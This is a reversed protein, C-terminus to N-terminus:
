YIDSATLINRKGVRESLHSADIFLVDDCDRKPRLVMIITPIDAGMFINAPLGIIADIHNKEILTKRIKEENKSGPSLIGSPFVAVMIGHPKVHFLGHLLFAYDAKGKPAVGYEKFRPDSSKGKNDWHQSYPPISVVADVYHPNYTHVPDDDDFWPWDKGLTDGCRAHISEPAIGHMILNMRTLNYMSENLDQAYYSICDRKRLRKAVTKGAGILLSGSGSTPDYIDIKDCGKLHNAIMEGMLSSIGDPTYFSGAKKGAHTAFNEILSECIFGLVGNGQSNDTPIDKILILLDIIAKTLTGLNDELKHLGSQLTNFVKDFVKKQEPYVNRKFANLAETVDSSRLSNISHIWTSFLNKYSIFYGLERQIYAKDVLNEEVLKSRIEDELWKNKRLLEEEQDSLYKYFIFGLIYDKYESTEIKPQMKIASAWIKSALQQKNM